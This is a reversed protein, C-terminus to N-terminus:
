NVASNIHPDGNIVRPSKRASSICSKLESTETWGCMGTPQRECRAKKYCAYEEKFECTSILSDSAGAEGCLQGSCGGVVCGNSAERPTTSSVDPTIPSPIEQVFVKGGPGRCQAPYSEMVPYGMEACEQFNTIKIVGSDPHPPFFIMLFLAIGSLVIAATILLLM